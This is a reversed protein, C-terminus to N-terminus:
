TNDDVIKVIYDLNCNTEHSSIYEKINILADYLRSFDKEWSKAEEEYTQQPM